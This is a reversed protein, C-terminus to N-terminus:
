RRGEGESDNKLQEGLAIEAAYQATFKKLKAFRVGWASNWRGAEAYDTDHVRWATELEDSLRSCEAKSRQSKIEPEERMREAEAFEAELPALQEMVQEIALMPDRELGRILALTQDISATMTALAKAYKSTDLGHALDDEYAVQLAAKEVGQERLKEYAAKRRDSISMTPAEIVSAM